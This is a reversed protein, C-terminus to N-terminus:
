APWLAAWESSVDNSIGGRGSLRVVQKNKIPGTTDPRVRCGMKAIALFVLADKFTFQYDLISGALDDWLAKETASTQLGEVEYGLEIGVAKHMGHEDPDDDVISKAHFKFNRFEGLEGYTTAVTTSRFEFKTCIASFSVGPALDALLDGPSCTGPYDADAAQMSVYEALTIFRQSTVVTYRTAKAGGEITLDFNLDSIKLALLNTSYHAGDAAVLYHQLDYRSLADLKLIWGAKACGMVKASVTMLYGHQSERLRDDEWIVEEFVVRADKLRGFSYFGGDEVGADSMGRVWWESLAAQKMNGRVKAYSTIPM